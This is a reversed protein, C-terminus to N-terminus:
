GSAMARSLSPMRRPSRNWVSSPIVPEPLDAVTPVTPVGALNDRTPHVAFIKGPFGLDLTKGLAVEAEKGGIFALSAPAMLRGLADDPQTDVKADM